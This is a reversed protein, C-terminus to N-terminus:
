HAAAKKVDEVAGQTNAAASKVDGTKADKVAATGKDGADKLNQMASKGTDTGTKMKGTDGNTPPTVPVPNEVAPVVPKEDEKKKSDCAVFVTAVALVLLVKKM